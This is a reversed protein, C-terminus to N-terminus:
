YLSMIWHSGERTARASPTGSMILDRTCTCEYRFNILGLGLREAKDSVREELGEGRHFHLHASAPAPAPPPWRLIMLGVAFPNTCRMNTCVERGM